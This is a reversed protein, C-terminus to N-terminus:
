GVSGPNFTYIMGAAVLMGAGNIVDVFASALKYTEIICVSM